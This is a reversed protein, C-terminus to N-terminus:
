INKTDNQERNGLLSGNGAMLIVIALMTIVTKEFGILGYIRQFVYITVIFLTIDMIFPVLKEAFWHVFRVFRPPLIPDTDLNLRLM